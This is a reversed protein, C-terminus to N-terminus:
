NFDPPEILPFRVSVRFKLPMPSHNKGKETDVPPLIFYVPNSYNGPENRIPMEWTEWKGLELGIATKLNVPLKLIWNM